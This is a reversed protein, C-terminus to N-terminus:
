KNEIEVDDGFFRRMKDEIKSERIEENSFVEFIISTSFFKKLADEIQKITNESKLRNLIGQTNCKFFIKNEYFKEVNGHQLLSYLVMYTNKKLYNLFKEWSNENFLGESKNEQNSKITEGKIEIFSKNEIYDKQTTNLHKILLLELYIRYEIETLLNKNSIENIKDLLFSLDSISTLNSLKEMYEINKENKENLLEKNGSNLKLFIIDRLINRLDEIFLKIEVDEEFLKYIIKFSTNLDKKFISNLLEFIFERSTIGLIKRVDNSTINEGYLLVRELISISDRMSGNGMYAIIELSEEDISINENECIYKLRKIIDKIEINKFEFRQCRSIITQPIKRIETTSLIFIVNEPPEELTKLLANFANISLMHVEDLIYIKYGGSFNSYRLEEILNRIQDVSNNSAADLEIVNLSNINKENCVKCNYCPNGDENHICNIAKSFIRACTTKGTGRTGSFLYAHTFKNLKIQNKLIEQIYKQGYVDEFKKPRYKTYLSDNVM